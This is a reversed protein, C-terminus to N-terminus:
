LSGAVSIMRRMSEGNNLARIAAFGAAEAEIVLKCNSEDIGGVGILPFGPVQECINGLAEVGHFATKGPTEFVPGFMAFDAGATEASRVEALSHTSVGILLDKGIRNRVTGVPLSRATLHVGDAGAALAIDVRDNILLRTNSAHTIEVLEVALHYVFKASLRKERLQVLEVDAEVAARVSSLIEHRATEINDDTALGSTILYVLPRHPPLKM